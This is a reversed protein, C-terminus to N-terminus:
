QHNKKVFDLFLKCVKNQQKSLYVIQFDTPQEKFINVKIFDNSVYANPIYIISPKKSALDVIFEISNSVVKNDPRFIEGDATELYTNKEMVIYDFEKLSEPTITTPLFKKHIYSSLVETDIIHYFMNSDTLKGARFAFDYGEQILDQFDNSFNVHININPYKVRFESIITSLYNRKEIPSTMRIDGRIDNCNGVLENGITELDELLPKAKAYLVSGEQTLSIQRTTRHFLKLSLDSELKQLRRSVTSVPMELIKSAKTLNKTEAVKFFVVLSNIDM